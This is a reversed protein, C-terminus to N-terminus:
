PLSIVDSSVIFEGSVLDLRYAGSSYGSLDFGTIKADLGDLNEVHILYGQPGYIKAKLPTEKPNVIQLVVMQETNEVRHQILQLAPPLPTTPNQSNALIQFVLASTFLITKMARKNKNSEFTFRDRWVHVVKEPSHNSHTPSRYDGYRTM